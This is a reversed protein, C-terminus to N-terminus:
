EYRLAVMPDIKAARRAPVYCALLAIALLLASTLAFTLPDAPKVEFLLASLARTAALAGAVGVCLGFCVLKLGHGVVMKQVDAPQAGLAMRIGIEHTRQTVLYSIVGYIGVIALVLASGAFIGLLLMNFRKQAVSLSMVEDMTKLETLPLQSDLSWIQQKLAPALSLADSTRSKVIVVGWRKWPQVRQTLPTYMGSADDTDLASHKTDGVVGVITLWDQKEVRAWRVRAGIPDRSQLLKNAFSETVIAVRESDEKDQRTFDRGKLLPIGMTRFYDPSIEHAIVEPENGVAVQSQGEVVLSHYITSGALPLESIIAASEVGPLSKAHENLKAFFDEQKPIEEYRAIPLQFSLTLLRDPRFGPDVSQLNWFSRILLGAGTLLVLSVALEAVVLVRRLGPRTFSEESARSSAHLVPEASLRSAQLAPILGFLLGTLVSIGITFALANGDVVVTELRPVGEPKMGVLLDVGVVAVGAGVLGGALSLLLSETLLQRVIRWRQAGLATRVSIEWRRAAARALLLSAFNACAILLVCGVSAMLVLLATRIKGVVRQHLPVVLWQRDRDAEPYLEGLRKGIVNIEAQAADIGAGDRLRGVAYLFQAVRVDAAEPYGVKLPIWLQTTGRPLGFGAPMVGIVTYPVGSLTLASGIVNSDANLYRKWFGYSTVVVRAGGLQNDAATLTRGLLPKVDLTEFLSGGVLASPISRPEGHGLLDLPWEGFAGFRAITRSQAAFDTVDPLSQGGNLSVLRGPDRYPLPRLLVANVVSFIATNAGIGLALTLVAVGTFRPSKRFQRLAYRMEQLLGTMKM